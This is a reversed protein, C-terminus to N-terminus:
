IVDRIVAQPNIKFKIVQASNKQVKFFVNIEPLITRKLNVVHIISDKRLALLTDNDDISRGNFFIALDASPTKLRSVVIRRLIRSTTPTQMTQIVANKKYNRIYVVVTASALGLNDNSKCVSNEM